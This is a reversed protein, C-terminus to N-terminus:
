LLTKSKRVQRYTNEEDEYARGYFSDGTMPNAYRRLTSADTSHHSGDRSRSTSTPSKIADVFDTPLQCTKLLDRILAKTDPRRGLPLRVLRFNEISSNPPEDPTTTRRVYFALSLPSSTPVRQQQTAELHASLHKLSEENISQINFIHLIIM